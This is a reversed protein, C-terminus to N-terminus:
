HETHAILVLFILLGIPALAFFFRAFMSFWFAGPSEDRSVYSLRRSDWWGGAKFNKWADYSFYLSLPIFILALLWTPPSHHM